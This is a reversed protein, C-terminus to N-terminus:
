RELGTGMRSPGELGTGVRPLARLGECMPTVFEEGKVRKMARQVVEKLERLVTKLEEDHRGFKVLDSHNRNCRFTVEYEKSYNGNTASSKDVMFIEEGNAKWQGDREDQHKNTKLLSVFHKAIM